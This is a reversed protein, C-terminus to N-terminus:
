KPTGFCVSLFGSEWDEVGCIAKWSFPRWAENSYSLKGALLRPLFSEFDDLTSFFPDDLADDTTPSSLDWAGTFLFDSSNLNCSAGLLLFNLVLVLECCDFENGSDAPELSLLEPRISLSVLTLSGL